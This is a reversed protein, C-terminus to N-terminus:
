TLSNLTPFIGPPPKRPHSCAAMKCFASAPTLFDEFTEPTGSKIIISSGGNFLITSAILCRELYVPVGERDALLFLTLDRVCQLADGLDLIIVKNLSADNTASLMGDTRISDLLPQQTGKMHEVFAAEFDTIKAPDVKDLFGRVGCYIVAM